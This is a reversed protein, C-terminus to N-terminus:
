LICMDSHISTHMHQMQSEQHTYSQLSMHHQLHVYVSIGNAMIIITAQERGMAERGELRTTITVPPAPNM